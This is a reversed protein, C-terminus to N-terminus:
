NQSTHGPVQLGMMGGLQHTGMSTTRTGDTSDLSWFGDPPPDGHGENKGDSSQILQIEHLVHAQHKQAQRDGLLAVGLHSSSQAPLLPATMCTTPLGLLSAWAPLPQEVSSYRMWM